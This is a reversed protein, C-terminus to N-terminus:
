GRPKVERLERISAIIEERGKAEAEAQKEQNREIRQATERFGQIDSELKVFRAEDKARQAELGDQRGRLNKTEHKLEKIDDTLNDHVPKHAKEFEAIKGTVHKAFLGVILAMAAILSLLPVWNDAAMLPNPQVVGPAPVLSESRMISVAGANPPVPQQITQTTHAEAM